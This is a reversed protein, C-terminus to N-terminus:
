IMSREVSVVSASRTIVASPPYRTDDRGKASGSRPETGAQSATQLVRAGFALVLNMQSARSTPADPSTEQWYRAISPIVDAVRLLTGPLADIVASM